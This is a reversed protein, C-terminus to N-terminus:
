KVDLFFVLFSIYVDKEMNKHTKQWFTKFVCFLNVDVIIIIVLQCYKYAESEQWM